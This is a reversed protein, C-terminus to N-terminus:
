HHAGEEAPAVSSFYIVTLLAFIFAQILGIAADFLKWLIDPAWLIFAPLAAILAVMITGAFINGFLRLALTIPKMVEEIINLPILLYPKRFLHGYYGRLGKKRIGVVHMTGIVLLALAYTLNVDSAPPPVYEPHHGTPVVAILNAIFIFLFLAMALPVVFPATKIGISGEVQNEVQETVTEFALQLKTPQRASAGRRLFFGLMLIIAGAILTATITDGNLTLGFVHWEIHEGPTINIAVTTTSM